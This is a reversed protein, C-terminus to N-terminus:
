AFPATQTPHSKCLAKWIDAPEDGAALAENVTRGGLEGIVIDQAFSPAWAQGFALTLRERLDSIRM